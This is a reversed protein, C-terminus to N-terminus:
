APEVAKLGPPVGGVPCQDSRGSPINGRAAAQNEHFLDQRVHSLCIM